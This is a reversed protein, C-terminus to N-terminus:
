FLGNCTLQHKGLHLFRFILLFKILVHIQTLLFFKLVLSTKTHFASIALYRWLTFLLPSWLSLIWLYGEWLMLPVRQRSNTANTWSYRKFSNKWLLTEYTSYILGCFNAEFNRPKGKVKLVLMILWNKSYFVGCVLLPTGYM